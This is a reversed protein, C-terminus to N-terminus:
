EKAKSALPVGAAKLVSDFSEEPSRSTLFMADRKESKDYYVYVQLCQFCIVLDVTKDGDRARIGHRPIFCKAAEGKNEDVGKALAKLLDTRKADKVTTKGLVKWGHFGDKVGEVSPDLSYIEYETAKDLIAKAAAPVENKDAAQATAGTLLAGVTLVIARNMSM